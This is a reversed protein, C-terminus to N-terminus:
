QAAEVIEVRVEAVGGIVIGAWLAADLSVTGM